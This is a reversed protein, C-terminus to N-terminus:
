DVVAADGGGRALPPDEGHECAARPQPGARGGNLAEGKMSRVRAGKRPAGPHPRPSINLCVWSPAIIAWEFYIVVLRSWQWSSVSRM